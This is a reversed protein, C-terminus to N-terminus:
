AAQGARQTGTFAYQVTSSLNQFTNGATSPLTLTLRLNDTAGSTLTLNSLSLNSGIIARSALVTQTTGACTYTYAPATGSEVWAVSCREIVMQLGDTADTDLLSSTTATTTLTISAMTSTSSNSLKFARQMTDGPHVSTAAVTLRNDVGPAALNVDVVGTSISQSDSDSDTFTAYTTLGAISAAAGLLGISALVNRTLHRKTSM